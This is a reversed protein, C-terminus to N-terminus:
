HKGLRGTSQQTVHSITRRLGKEGERERYIDNQNRSCKIQVVRYLKLVTPRVGSVYLWGTIVGASRLLLVVM